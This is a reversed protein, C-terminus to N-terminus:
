QLAGAKKHIEYLEEVNDITYLPNGVDTDIKAEEGTLLEDIAMLVSPNGGYSEDFGVANEPFLLKYRSDARPAAPEPKVESERAGTLKVEASRFSRFAYRM